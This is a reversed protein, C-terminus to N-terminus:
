LPGSRNYTSVAKEIFQRFRQLPSDQSDGSSLVWKSRRDEGRSVPEASYRGLVFVPLGLESSKSELTSPNGATSCAFITKPLREGLFDIQPTTANNALNFIPQSAYKEIDSFFTKTDIVAIVHEIAVLPPGSDRSAPEPGPADMVTPSCIIIDWSRSRFEVQDPRYIQGNSLVIDPVWSKIITRLREELWPGIVPMSQLTSSWVSMLDSALEITEIDEVGELCAEM